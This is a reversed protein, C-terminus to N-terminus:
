KKQTEKKEKNIKRQKYKRGKIKQKGNRINKREEKKGQPDTNTPASIRYDRSRLPAHILGFLSFSMFQRFITFQLPSISEDSPGKM